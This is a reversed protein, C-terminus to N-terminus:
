FKNADDFFHCRSREGGLIWTNYTAPNAAVAGFYCETPVPTWIFQHYPVHIITNGFGFDLSGSLSAQHCDVEYLGNGVSVVGTFDSLMAAVLNNPLTSLTSGSDLVVPQKYEPVTYVDSVSSEPKTIGVSNM